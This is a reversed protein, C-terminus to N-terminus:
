LYGGVEQVKEELAPLQSRIEDLQIMKEEWNIIHISTYLQLEDPVNASLSRGLTGLSQRRQRKGTANITPAQSRLDIIEEKRCRRLILSIM